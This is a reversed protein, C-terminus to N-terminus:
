GSRSAGQRRKGLHSDPHREFTPRGGSGYACTRVCANIGYLWSSTPRATLGVPPLPRIPRLRPLHALVGGGVGDHDGAAVSVPLHQQDAEVVGAPPGDGARRGGAFGWRRVGCLSELLFGLEVQGVDSRLGEGAGGDVGVVECNEPVSLYSCRYRATIPPPLASATSILKDSVAVVGAGAGLGRRGCVATRPRTRRCCIRCDSHFWKQRPQM